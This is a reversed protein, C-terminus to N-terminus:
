NCYVRIFNKKKKKLNGLFLFYTTFPYKKTMTFNWFCREITGGNPHWFIIQRFLTAYFIKKFFYIKRVLSLNKKASLCRLLGLSCGWIVRGVRCMCFRKAIIIHKFSGTSTVHAWQNSSNVILQGVFAAEFFDQLQMQYVCSRDMNLKKSSLPLRDQWLVPHKLIWVPQGAVGM